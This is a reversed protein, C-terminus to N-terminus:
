ESGLEFVRQTEESNARALYFQGCGSRHFCTKWSHGCAIRSPESHYCFPPVRKLAGGKVVTGIIKHVKWLSLLKDGDILLLVKTTEGCLEKLKQDRLLEYLYKGARWDSKNIGSLWHDKNDSAYFDIIEM